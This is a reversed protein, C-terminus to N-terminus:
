TIRLDNENAQILKKDEVDGRSDLHLAERIKSNCLPRAEQLNGFKLPLRETFAGHTWLSLALSVHGTLCRPCRTLNNKALQPFSEWTHSYISMIDPRGVACQDGIMLQNYHVGYPKEAFVVTSNRAATELDRWDFGVYRIALDPRLRMHLDFEGYDEAMKNAAFIKYHMKQQNTLGRFPSAQDDELMVHQTGYLAKLTAASVKSESTLASFLSPYRKRMTEYGLKTGIEKYTASFCQGEFPLVYRFPQADSRGIDNWSHLFFVPEVGHLITKKWTAFAQLYGRLQGSVCIAVKPKRRGSLFPAYRNKAAQLMQYTSNRLKQDRPKTVNCSSHLNRSNIAELLPRVDALGWAKLKVQAAGACHRMLLMSAASRDSTEGPLHQDLYISLEEPGSFADKGALWSLLLVKDPRLNYLRKTDVESWYAALLEKSNQGFLDPNFMTSYPLATDELTFMEFHALHMKSLWKQDLWGGAVARITLAFVLANKFSITGMRATDLEAELPSQMARVLLTVAEKNGSTLNSAAEHALTLMPAVCPTHRLLQSAFQKFGAWNKVEEVNESAAILTRSAALYIEPAEPYHCLAKALTQLADMQYGSSHQALASEIAETVSM